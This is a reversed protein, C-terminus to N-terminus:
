GEAGDRAKREALWRDFMVFADMALAPQDCYGGAYPLVAAGLGMPGAGRLARLREWLRVLRTAWEPVTFRPNEDYAFGDIM